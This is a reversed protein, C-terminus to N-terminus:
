ASAGMVKETSRALFYVVVKVVLLLAVQFPMYPCAVGLHIAVMPMVAYQVLLIIVVAYVSIPRALRTAWGERPLIPMLPTAPASTPATDFM